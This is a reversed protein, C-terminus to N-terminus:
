GATGPTADDGADSVCTNRESVPMRNCAAVLARYRANESKITDREEVTLAPTAAAYNAGRANISCIGRESLPLRNCAALAKASAADAPMPARRDGPLMGRQAVSTGSAGQAKCIGRESLPLRSCAAVNPSMSTAFQDNTARASGIAVTVCAISLAISLRNM